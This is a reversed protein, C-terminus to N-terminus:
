FVQISLLNSKKFITLVFKGLEWFSIYIENDDIKYIKHIPIVISHNTDKDRIIVNVGDEFEIKSILHKEKFSSPLYSIFTEYDLKTSNAERIANAMTEFHDSM